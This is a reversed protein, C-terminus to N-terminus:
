LIYLLVLNLVSAHLSFNCLHGSPPARAGSISCVCRCSITSFVILYTENYMDYVVCDFQLILIIVACINWRDMEADNIHIQLSCRVKDRIQGDTLRFERLVHM